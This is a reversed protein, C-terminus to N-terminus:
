IGSGVRGTTAGAAVPAEPAAVPAEPAAVPAETGGRRGLPETPAVTSTSM